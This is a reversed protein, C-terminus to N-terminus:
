RAKEKLAKEEDTIEQLTLGKCVEDLELEPFFRKAENEFPTERKQNPITAYSFTVMQGNRHITQFHMAPKGKDDLFKCSQYEMSQDEWDDNEIFKSKTECDAGNEYFAIFAKIQPEPMINYCCKIITNTGPIRCRNDDIPPEQGAAAPAGAALFAIAAILRFALAIAPPGGGTKRIIAQIGNRTMTM